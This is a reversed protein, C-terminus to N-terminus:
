KVVVKAVNAGNKVVYIGAPVAVTQDPSTVAQATVLRGDITYISVAGGANAVKVGGAVGYIKASSGNIVKIGTKIGHNEPNDWTFSLKDAETSFKLNLGTSSLFREKNSSLVIAFGDDANNKFAFTQNEGEESFTANATGGEDTLYLNDHRIKYEAPEESEATTKLPSYAVISQPAPTTVAELKLVVNSSKEGSLVGKKDKDIGIFTEGAGGVVLVGTATGDEDFLASNIVTWTDKIDGKKTITWQLTAPNDETADNILNITSYIDEKALSLKSGDKSVQMLHGKSDHLYFKGAEYAAPLYFNHEEKPSGTQEWSINADEAKLYYEGDSATYSFRYYPVPYENGILSEDAKESRHITIAPSDAAPAYSIANDKDYSLYKGSSEITVLGKDGKWDFDKAEEFGKYLDFVEPGYGSEILVTDKFDDTKRELYVRGDTDNDNIYASVREVEALPTKTGDADVFVPTFTWTKEEGEGDSKVTWQAAIDNATVNQPYDSSYGRYYGKKENRVTVYGDMGGWPQFSPTLKFKLPETKSISDAVVLKYSLSSELHWAGELSVLQGGDNGRGIALNFSLTDIDNDEYRAAVPLFTYTDDKCDRVIAFMQRVSEGNEKLTDAWGLSNKLPHDFTRDDSVTLLLGNGDSINFLEVISDGIQFEKADNTYADKNVAFWKADDKITDARSIKFSAGKENELSINGKGASIYKSPLGTIHVEPSVEDLKRDKLWKEGIYEYKKEKETEEDVSDVRVYFLDGATM